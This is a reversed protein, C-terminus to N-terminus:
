NYNIICFLAADTCKLSSHCYPHHQHCSRYPYLYSFLGMLHSSNIKFLCSTYFATRHKFDLPQNRGCVVIRKCDETSKILKIALIFNCGQCFIDAFMNILLSQESTLSCFSYFINALEGNQALGIILGFKNLYDSM